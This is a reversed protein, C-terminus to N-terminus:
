RAKDPAAKGFPALAASLPSSVRQARKQKSLRVAMCADPFLMSDSTPKLCGGRLVRALLM